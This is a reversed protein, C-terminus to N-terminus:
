QFKQWIFWATSRVFSRHSYRNEELTIDVLTKNKQNEPEYPNQFWNPQRDGDRIKQNLTTGWCSWDESGSSELEFRRTRFRNNARNGQKPIWHLHGLNEECVTIRHPTGSNCHKRTGNKTGHALHLDNEPETKSCSLNNM